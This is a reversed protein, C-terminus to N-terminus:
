YFESGIIESAENLICRNIEKKDIDDISATGLSAAARWPAVTEDSPSQRNSTLRTVRIFLVINMRTNTLIFYLFTM